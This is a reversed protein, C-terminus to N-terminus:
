DAQKGSIKWTLSSGWLDELSSGKTIKPALNKALQIGKWGVV